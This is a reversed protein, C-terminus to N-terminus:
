IVNELEQWNVIAKIKKLDMSLRGLKIIFKIFNTKRIFFKYKKIVVLIYEGHEEKTILYIIIDNLYAIIFKNLYEGLINNI